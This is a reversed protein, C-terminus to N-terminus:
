NEYFGIVELADMFEKQGFKRSSNMDMKFEQGEPYKGSLKEEETLPISLVATWEWDSKSTGDIFVMGKGPLTITSPAWIFKSEDEYLLDKYLEPSTAIINEVVTSDQKMESTTTFGCGLCLWTTTSQDVHQEYCANGGCKKCDVLQDKM